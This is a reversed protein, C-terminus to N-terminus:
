RITLFKSTKPTGNKLSTYILKQTSSTQAGLSLEQGIWSRRAVPVNLDTVAQHRSRIRDNQNLVLGAHETGVFFVAPVGGLKALLDFFLKNAVVLSALFTNLLQGEEPHGV